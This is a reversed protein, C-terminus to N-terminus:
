PEVARYRVKAERILGRIEERDQAARKWNRVGMLKKTNKQWNDNEVSNLNGLSSEL